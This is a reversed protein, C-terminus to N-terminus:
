PEILDRTMRATLRSARDEKKEFREVSGALEKRLRALAEDLRRFTVSAQVRLKLDLLDVKGTEPDVIVVESSDSRFLYARGRLVVLEGQEIPQEREDHLGVVLKFDAPAPEPAPEAAASTLALAVGWALQCRRSM